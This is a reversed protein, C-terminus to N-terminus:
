PFSPVINLHTALDIGPVVAVGGRSRCTGDGVTGTDHHIFCFRGVARLELVYGDRSEGVLPASGRWHFHGYAGPQPIDARDVLWVPHDHAVHYLFMANIPEGDVTWGVDCTTMACDEHRAIPLGDATSEGTYHVYLFGALAGDAKVRTQQHTDIENGFLFDYPAAHDRWPYGKAVATGCTALAAVALVITGIVHRMSTERGNFTFRISYQPDCSRRM